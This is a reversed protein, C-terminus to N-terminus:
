FLEGQKNPNELDLLFKKRSLGGAYGVLSGDSGIVRHCPVIISIKNQGNALGVARVKKADGLKKALDMYSWTKGFPITLLTQWVTKQFPTGELDFTVEFIKRTELFYEGLQQYVKQTTDNVNEEFSNEFKKQLINKEFNNESINKEINNEFNNESIKKDFFNEGIFNVTRLGNETAQIELLGIPSFFYQTFLNEEKSRNIKYIEDTTMM